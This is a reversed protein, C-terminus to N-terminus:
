RFPARVRWAQSSRADKRGSFCRGPRQQREETKRRGWGRTGGRRGCGTKDGSGGCSGGGLQLLLKSRASCVRLQRQWSRCKQHRGNRVSGKRTVPSILPNGFAQTLRQNTTMIKATNVNGRGGYCFGFIAIANDGRRIIHVHPERVAACAM